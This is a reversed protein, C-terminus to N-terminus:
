ASKRANAKFGTSFDCACCVQKKCTKLAIWIHVPWMVNTAEGVPVNAQASRRACGEDVFDQYRCVAEPACKASCLCVHVIHVVLM